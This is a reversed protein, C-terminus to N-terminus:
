HLASQSHFTHNGSDITLKQSYGYRGCEQTRQMRSSKGTRAKRIPIEDYAERPLPVADLVLSQQKDTVESCSLEVDLASYEQIRRSCHRM